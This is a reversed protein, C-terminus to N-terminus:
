TLDLAGNGQRHRGMVPGNIKMLRTLSETCRPPFNCRLTKIFADVLCCKEAPVIGCVPPSFNFFVVCLFVLPAIENFNRILQTLPESQNGHLDFPLRLFKHHGTDSLLSKKKNSYRRHTNFLDTFVNSKSKIKQAFVIHKGEFVM